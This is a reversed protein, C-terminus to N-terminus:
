KHKQMDKYKQEYHKDSYNLRDIQNGVDIKAKDIAQKQSVSGSGVLLKRNGFSLVLDLPKVYDDMYM